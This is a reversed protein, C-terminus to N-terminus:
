TSENVLSLCHAEKAENLIEQLEPNRSIAVDNSTGL